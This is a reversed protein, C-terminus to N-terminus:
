GDGGEVYFDQLGWWMLPRYDGVTAPGVKKMPIKRILAAGEETAGMELFAQQLRARLAADVRPHAVIPLPAMPVSRYLVMLQEQVEPPQAQLTKLVGGGATVKGEVVARYVNDHSKVYVPTIDIKQDRKLYARLVLSAALANPAPFALTEGSLQKLSTFGSDKRVVLVGQLDSGVDRVLPEYRTKQRAILFTYPNIYALDVDGRLVRQEFIQIDDDVVLELELETRQALEDLIPLWTAELTERKFQPSVGVRLPRRAGAAGAALFTLCLATVAVRLLQRPPLRRLIPMPRSRFM